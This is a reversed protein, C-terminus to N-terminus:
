RNFQPGVVAESACDEDCCNDSQKYYDSILGNTMEIHCCALLKDKLIARGRAVRSKVASDSLAQKKAYSHQTEGDIETALLTDRYIAPLQAIFPKLCAAIEEHLQLDDAESQPINEDLQETAIGKKRLHDVLTNRAVAFLWATMNDISQGKRSTSLAKVFIDQLLDDVLAADAIRKLLYHRLSQQLQIFSTELNDNPTQKM